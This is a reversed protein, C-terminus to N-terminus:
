IWEIYLPYQMWPLKVVTINWSISLLLIDVGKKEIKLISKEKNLKLIGERRIFTEQIAEVSSDKVKEWNNKFGNLLSNAMGTEELTLDNISILLEQIPIGVLIKNLILEHEQFDIHGFVLYQLLYVARNESEKNIFVGNKMMKLEEFFRTLFPWLLILGANSIKIEIGTENLDDEINMLMWKHNDPNITKVLSEFNKPEMCYSLRTMIAENTHYKRLMSILDNKSEKILKILIQNIIFNKRSIWIPLYGRKLYCELANILYNKNKQNSFSKTRIYGSDINNLIHHLKEELVTKIRIALYTPLEKENISGIDIELTDLEITIDDPIVNEVTKKIEPLIKAEFVSEITSNCNSALTESEYEFSIISKEINNQKEHMITKVKIRIKIIDSGHM